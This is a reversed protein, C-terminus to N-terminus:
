CDHHINIESLEKGVTWNIIDEKLVVTTPLKARRIIRLCLYDISPHHGAVEIARLSCHYELLRSLSITDARDNEYFSQEGGFPKSHKLLKLDAKAHEAISAALSDSTLAHPIACGATVIRYNDLASTLSELTRPITSCVLHDQTFHARLARNLILASMNILTCGIDDLEPETCGEERGWKIFLEGGIGGPVLVVRDYIRLLQQEMFRWLLKLFSVDIRNTERPYIVNGGAKLVVARM